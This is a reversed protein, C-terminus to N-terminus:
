IPGSSRNNRCRPLAHLRGFADFEVPFEAWALLAAPSGWWAVPMRTPSSIYFARSLGEGYNISLEVGLLSLVSYVMDEENTTERVKMLRFVEFTHKRHPVFQAEHIEVCMARLEWMSGLVGDQNSTFWYIMPPLVPYLQTSDM